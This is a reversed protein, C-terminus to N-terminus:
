GCVRTMLIFTGLCGNQSIQNEFFKYANDCEDIFIQNTRRRMTALAKEEDDQALAVFKHTTTYFSVNTYGKIGIRVEATFGRFMETIDPIDVGNHFKLEMVMPVKGYPTQYAATYIITKNYM